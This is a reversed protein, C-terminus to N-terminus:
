LQKFNIKAFEGYRELAKVDYAKAAEIEDDFYGIWKYDFSSAWKGRKKHFFVGKYKSTKGRVSQNANNQSRTCFRLNEKRNDLKDNNKHDIEQGKQANMIVRHIPITTSKGDKKVAGRVYGNANLHWPRKNLMEFDDSDVITVKGIGHKGTLKIKKWEEKQSM